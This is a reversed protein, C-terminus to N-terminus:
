HKLVGIVWILQMSREKLVLLKLWLLCIIVQVAVLTLLLMAMKSIHDLLEKLPNM